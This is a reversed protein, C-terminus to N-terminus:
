EINQYQGEPGKGLDQYSGRIEHHMDACYYREGLPVEPVHPILDLESTNETGNKRGRLHDPPTKSMLSIVEGSRMRYISGGCSASSYIAHTTALYVSVECHINLLDVLGGKQHDPVHSLGSTALFHAM